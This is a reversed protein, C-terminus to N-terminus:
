SGQEALITVDISHSGYDTTSTPMGIELELYKVASSAVSSALPVYSGATTMAISFTGIAAGGTYASDTLPLAAHTYIHDGATAGLTWTQSTGTANSSKITYNETGSGNNTVTQTQPTDSGYPNYTTEYQATNKTAGVNVTGYDVSGDTVTVSVLVASVTCTVTGTDAAFVAAPLLLGMLAVVAVIAVIRKKM